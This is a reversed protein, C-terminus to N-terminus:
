SRAGSPERGAGPPGAFAQAIDLWEDAVPGTAVLALDARHRRQTVLLCFDLAPGVVRDTADSPGFEWISQRSTGPEGGREESRVAGAGPGSPGILEVRVPAAPIDRGHTMFSHGLTRVGLYAIHRLRDTPTRRHGLTDAIDQGHAWTEMIRATAMSAPSMATGYWPLKVGPPTAALAEALAARGARWRQLLEAPPCLFSETGRDVFRFPDGAASAVSAHFAAPDTAALLAVHDTWALHAVQHAITWGDAPTLRTWHADPLPGVRADLDGSEADLDALLAALDPM